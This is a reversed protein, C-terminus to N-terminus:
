RRYDFRGSTSSSRTRAFLDLNPGFNRSSSDTTTKGVLATSSQSDRTPAEITISSLSSIHHPRFMLSKDFSRIFGVTRSFTREEQHRSSAALPPPPPLVDQPDLEEFIRQPFNTSDVEEENPVPFDSPFQEKQPPHHVQQQRHPDPHNFASALGVLSYLVAKM